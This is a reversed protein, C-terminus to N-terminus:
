KGTSLAVAAFRIDRGSAYPRVVISVREGQKPLSHNDPSGELFLEEIQLDDLGDNRPSTHEVWLKTKTKEKITAASSQRLIGTLTIM